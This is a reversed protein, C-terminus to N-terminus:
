GLLRRIEKATQVGYRRQEYGFPLRRRRRKKRKKRRTPIRKPSKKKRPEQFLRLIPTIPSPMKPKQEQIIESIGRTRMRQRQKQIPETIYGPTVLPRQRQTYGALSIERPTETIGRRSPETIPLDGLRQIPDVWTFPDLEQGKKPTPRVKTAARAGGLLGLIGSPGRFPKSITPGIDGIRLGPIHSKVTETWPILVPKIEGVGKPLIEPILDHGTKVLGYEEGLRYLLGKKSKIISILPGKVDTKPVKQDIPITLRGKEFKWLVPTKGETIPISPTRPVASPERKGFFRFFGPEGKTTDYVQVYKRQYLVDSPRSVSVEEPFAMREEFPLFEEIPYDRLFRKQRYQALKTKGLGILKGATYGGALGGLAQIGFAGPRERYARGFEERKEPSIGLEALGKGTKWWALPRAPFTLGEIFGAGFHIGGYQARAFATEIDPIERKGMRYAQEEFLLPKSEPRVKEGEEWLRTSVRGFLREEEVLWIDVIGPQYEGRRAPVYKRAEQIAWQRTEYDEIDGEFFSEAQETLTPPMGRTPEEIFRPEAVEEVAARKEYEEEKYKQIDEELKREKKEREKLKRGARREAEELGGEYDLEEREKLKRGARREAEKLYQESL